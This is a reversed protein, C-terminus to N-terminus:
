GIITRTIKIATTRTRAIKLNNNVEEVELEVEKVVEEEEQVRDVEQAEEIEM